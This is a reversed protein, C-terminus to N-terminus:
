APDHRGDGEDRPEDVGPEEGEASIAASVAASVEGTALLPRFRTEVLEDLMAPVNCDLKLDLALALCAKGAATMRFADGGERREIWGKRWLLNLTRALNKAPEKVRGAVLPMLERRTIWRRTSKQLHWAYAAVAVAAATLPGTGVRFTKEADVLVMVRDEFVTLRMYGDLGAGLWYEQLGALSDVGLDRLVARVTPPHGSATRIILKRIAREYKPEPGASDFLTAPLYESRASPAFATQFFAAVDRPKFERGQSAAIVKGLFKPGLSQLGAATPTYAYGSKEEPSRGTGVEDIWCVRKLDEIARGVSRAASRESNVFHEVISARAVPMSNDQYSKLIYLFVALAQDSITSEGALLSRSSIGMMMVRGDSLMTFFRGVPSQAVYGLLGSLDDDGILRQVAATTLPRGASTGCLIARIALDYRQNVLMSM